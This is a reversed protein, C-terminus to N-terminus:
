ELIAVNAAIRNNVGIIIVNLFRMLYLRLFLVPRYKLRVSTKVNIVTTRVTM